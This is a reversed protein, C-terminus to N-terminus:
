DDSAAERKITSERHLEGVLVGLAFAGSLAASLRQGVIYGIDFHGAQARLADSLADIVPEGFHLSVDGATHRFAQPDVDLGVYALAMQEFDMTAAQEGDMLADLRACAAETAATFDERM